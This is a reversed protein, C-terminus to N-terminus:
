LNETIKGSQSNESMRQRKKVEFDKFLEVYEATFQKCYQELFDKGVICTLMKKFTRDVMVGGWNERSSLNLEQLKGGRKVEYVTMDITGGKNFVFCRNFSPLLCVM